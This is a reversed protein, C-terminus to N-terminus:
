EMVVTDNYNNDIRRRGRCGTWIQTKHSGMAKRSEKSGLCLRCRYGDSYDYFLILYICFPMSCYVVRLYTYGFSEFRVCSKYNLFYTNM